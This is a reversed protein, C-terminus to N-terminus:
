QAVVAYLNVSFVAAGKYGIESIRALQLAGRLKKHYSSKELSEIQKAFCRLLISFMICPKEFM